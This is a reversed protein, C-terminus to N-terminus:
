QCSQHLFARLLTLPNTFFDFFAAFFEREDNNKFKQLREYIKRSTDDALKERIKTFKSIRRM